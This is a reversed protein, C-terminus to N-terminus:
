IGKTFKWSEAERQGAVQELPLQTPHPVGRRHEHHGSGRGAPAGPGRSSRRRGGGAERGRGTRPARPLGASVRGM